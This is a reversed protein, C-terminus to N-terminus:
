NWVGKLHSEWGSEFGDIMEYKSILLVTALLEDSKLYEPIEMVIQLYRLTESHYRVAATRDHRPSNVQPTLLSQHRSSLALIALMLGRNRLAMTPIDTAFSANSDTLDIWTSIHEIFHRLLMIELASLELQGQINYPEAQGTHAPFNSAPAFDMQGVLSNLDTADDDDDDHEPIQYLPESEHDDFLTSDRQLLSLWRLPATEASYVNGSATSAPSTTSFATAFATSELTPPLLSENSFVTQFNWNVDGNDHNMSTKNLNTPTTGDISVTDSHHIIQSTDRAEPAEPAEPTQQDQRTDQVEQAGVAEGLQPSAQGPKDNVNLDQNLQDIFNRLVLRDVQPNM